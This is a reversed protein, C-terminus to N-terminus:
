ELAAAVADDLGSLAAQWVETRVYILKNPHIYYLYTEPIQGTRAAVAEAYVGIQLTYRRANEYAGRESVLATKYDLVHWQGGKRGGPTHYLLDIVGHIARDGRQYVFPVERYVQDAGELRRVVEGGEFRRLLALAAEAIAEADAASALQREWAYGRLRQMLAAEDMRGPLLWQRLARHVVEGVIQQHARRRPEQPLPRVPEPADHLVAHRFAARGKEPPEYFPARGLAAIQTATLVRGPGARDVPVPALLPPRAPEVGDFPRRARVEAAAWPSPGAAARPALDDPGPPAAPVHVACCGWGCDFVQPEPAPSLDDKGFGLADLWQMLWADDIWKHLTGSVILADQARTAGVYLLRRREARERRGTVREAWHWAFPPPEKEGAVTPLKCAAGAEPCLQFVSGGGSGRTWTADALAVVPFELGKSAHVSMIRVAGEVEVVAEGERVERATLDRAYANFAGLSIRGSARALALLKEVNGRRRAGDALGTLAALYHTMNLARVLLEAISARGAM